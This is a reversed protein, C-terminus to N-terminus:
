DMHLFFKWEERVDINLNMLIQHIPLINKVKVEEGNKNLYPFVDAKMGNCKKCALILNYSITPGGASRPYIHDKTAQSYPIKCLCYQCTGKYLKYLQRLTISNNTKSKHKKSGFYHTIVMISPIEYKKNSSNMYCIEDQHYASNEYWSDWDHLVGFRDYAKARGTILHRIAARATFFGIAQYASDLILTTTHNPQVHNM